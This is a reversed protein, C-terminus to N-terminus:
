VSRVTSHEVWRPVPRERTRMRGAVRPGQAGRSLGAVIGCLGGVVHALPVPVFGSAATDVFLTAGSVAEFGVKLTFGALLLVMVLAVRPESRERARRLLVITSAVFLASDVGSLGRYPWPQGPTLLLAVSIVIASGLVCGVMRKREAGRGVREWVSAVVGFIMLDWLLHEFSWHVFHGTLLRWLEGEALRPGDLQLAVAAGPVLAVLLALLTLLASAWPVSRVSSIRAGPRSLALSM